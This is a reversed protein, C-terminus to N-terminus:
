EDKMQVVSEIQAAHSDFHRKIYGFLFEVTVNGALLPDWLPYFLSKDFDADDVSALARLSARCSRDYVEALQWRSKGRAGLRTIRVNLWDFLGKPILRPLLQYLWVQRRIMVVEVIMYRPIIAIHYLVQRINWAPNDSPLSLAEEPLSDLLRHFAARTSEIEQRLRERTKM